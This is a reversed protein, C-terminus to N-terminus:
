APLSRLGPLPLLMECPPCMPATCPLSPSAFSRDALQNPFLHIIHVTGAFSGCEGGIPVLEDVDQSAVGQAHALALLFLAFKFAYM